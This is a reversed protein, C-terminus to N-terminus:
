KGYEKRLSALLSAPLPISRMHQGPLKEAYALRFSGEAALAGEEGGRLVRFSYGLSSRGPELPVIQVCFDEGPGIACRFDSHLNVKPFGRFGGGPLAEFQALGLSHLWAAEAREVYRLINSFHVIGAADTDAFSVTARYTFGGM